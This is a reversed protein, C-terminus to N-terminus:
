SYTSLQPAQKLKFFPDKKLNINIKATFSATTSKYTNYMWNKFKSTSTGLRKFVSGQTANASADAGTSQRASELSATSHTSRLVDSQGIALETMMRDFDFTYTSQRKSSRHDAGITEEHRKMGTQMDIM